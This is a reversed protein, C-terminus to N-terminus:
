NKLKLLPRHLIVVELAYDYQNILVSSSIFQNLFQKLYIQKRLNLNYKNIQYTQNKQLIQFNFM